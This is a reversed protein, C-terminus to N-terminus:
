ERHSFAGLDSALSGPALLRCSEEAARERLVHCCREQQPQGVGALCLWPGAAWARKGDRKREQELKRQLEGLVLIFRGLSVLAQPAPPPPNVGVLGFWVLEPLCYLM